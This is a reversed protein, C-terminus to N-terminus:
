VKMNLKKLNNKLKHVKKYKWWKCQEGVFLIRYKYSSFPSM